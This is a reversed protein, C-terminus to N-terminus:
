GHHLSCSPIPSFLVSLFLALLLKYPRSDLTLLSARGLSSKLHGTPFSTESPRELSKSPDAPHARITDDYGYAILQAEEREEHASASAPRSLM